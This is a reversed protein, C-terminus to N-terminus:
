AVMGRRGFSRRIYAPDVFPAGVSVTHDVTITRLRRKLAELEILHERTYQVAAAQLCLLCLVAWLGSVLLILM